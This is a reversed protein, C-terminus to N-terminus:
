PHEVVINFAVIFLNKVLTIKKKHGLIHKQQFIIFKLTTSPEDCWKAM